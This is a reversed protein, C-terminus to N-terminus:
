SDACLKKLMCTFKFNMCAHSLVGMCLTNDSSKGYHQPAHYWKKNGLNNM